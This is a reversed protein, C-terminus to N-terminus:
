FFHLVMTIIGWVVVIPLAIIAIVYLLWLLAFTYATITVILRNFFNTNM